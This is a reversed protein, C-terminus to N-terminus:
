GPAFSDRHDCPILSNLWERSFEGVEPSSEDFDFGKPRPKTEGVRVFCRSGFIRPRQLDVRRPPAIAVKCFPLMTGAMGAAHEASCVRCSCHTRKSRWLCDLLSEILCGESQRLDIMDLAGPSKAQPSGTPGTCVSSQNSQITPNRLVYAEGPTTLQRSSISLWVRNSQATRLLASDLRPRGNFV